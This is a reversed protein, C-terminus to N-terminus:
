TPRSILFGQLTDLHRLLLWDECWKLGDQALTRKPYFHSTVARFPWTRKVGVGSAIACVPGRAKQGSDVLEAVFRSQYGIIDLVMQRTPLREGVRRQAPGQPPIGYRLHFLGGVSAALFAATVSLALPPKSLHQV